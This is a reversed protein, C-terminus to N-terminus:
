AKYWSAFTKDYNQNWTVQSSNKVAFTGVSKVYYINLTEGVEVLYSLSPPNM